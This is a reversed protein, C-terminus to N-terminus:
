NARRIILHLEKSVKFLDVLQRFWDEKTNFHNEVKGSPFCSVTPTFAVIGEENEAFLVLDGVKLSDNGNENRHHAKLVTCVDEERVLAIGWSSRDTSKTITVKKSGSTRSLIEQFKSGKNPVLGSETEKPRKEPTVSPLAKPAASSLEPDTLSIANEDTKPSKQDSSAQARKWATRGRRRKTGAARASEKSEHHSLMKMGPSTKAFHGWSIDCQCDTAISVAHLLLSSDDLGGIRQVARDDVFMSHLVNRAIEHRFDSTNKFSFDLAGSGQALTEQYTEEFAYMAHSVDFLLEGLLEELHHRSARQNYGFFYRLSQISFWAALLKAMEKAGERFTAEDIISLHIMENEKGDAPSISDQIMKELLQRM